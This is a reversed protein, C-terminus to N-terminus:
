LAQEVWALIVEADQIAADAADTDYEDSSPETPYRTAVYHPALTECAERVDEPADLQEALAALDHTRWLRDHDAMHVAKLAKEAAQQAHFCAMEFRDGKRLYRAGDLDARAQEHWATPEDAM